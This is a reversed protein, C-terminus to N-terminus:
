VFLWGIVAAFNVGIFRTIIDVQRGQKKVIEIWVFEWFVDFIGDPFSKSEYFLVWFIIL